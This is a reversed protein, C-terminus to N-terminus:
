ERDPLRQPFRQNLFDQLILCAARSDVLGSDRMGRRRKRPISEEAEVSTLREDVLHVPLGFKARLKAAFAEVERAQPGASDDMNLPHGLVLDTVRRRRIIEGLRGLRLAPTGETLAPLPVAVGLEDGFSLGVRKAGYDIGLCRM